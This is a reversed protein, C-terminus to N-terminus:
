FLARKTPPYGVAAIFVALWTREKELPRIFNEKRNCPEPEEGLLRTSMLKDKSSRQLALDVAM